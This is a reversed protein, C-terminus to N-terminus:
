KGSLTAAAEYTPAAALGIQKGKTSLIFVTGDHRWTTGSPVGKAPRQLAEPWNQVTWETMVVSLPDPKVGSPAVDTWGDVLGIYFAVEGSEGHEYVHYEGGNWAMVDGAAAGPQDVPIGEPAELLWMLEAAGFTNDQVRKWGEGPSPPDAPDRPEIGKEYRYPFLIDATAKPPDEYARNIAKWGGDMYIRCAFRAGEDYPLAASRELFHPISPTDALDGFEDQIGSLREFSMGSSMYQFQLLSAEGEIFAQVAAGRDEDRNAIRELSPLGIIQDSLAHGLEHALTIEELAGLETTGTSVLLRKKVPLYLGTVQDTFLKELEEQVNTGPEVARLLALVRSIVRNEGATPASKELKRTVFDEFAQSSLFESPVRQLFVLGRLQEVSDTIDPLAEEPTVDSSFENREISTDPRACAAGGAPLAYISLDDPETPQPSPSESPEASTTSAGGDPEGATNSPRSLDDWSVATATVALGFVLVIAGVFIAREKGSPGEEREEM